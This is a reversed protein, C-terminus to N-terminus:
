CEVTAFRVVLSAAEYRSGLVFHRYRDTPDALWAEAITGTGKTVRLDPIAGHHATDARLPSAMTLAVILLALHPM